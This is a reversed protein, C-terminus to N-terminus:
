VTPLKIDFREYAIDLEALSIDSTSADLDGAIKVRTPFAEKLIYRKSIEPTVELESGAATLVGGAGETISLDREPRQVHWIIIDARYEAGEVAALMWSFFATDLRACGRNLTVDNMSPIGPFKQTYTRIGERYEAPDNTVEPATISQFGAQTGGGAIYGPGNENPQLVDSAATGAIGLVPSAGGEVTTAHFRFSHLPDTAAARGM